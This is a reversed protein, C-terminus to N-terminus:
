KESIVIKNEDVRLEFNVIEGITELTQVATQNFELRGSFTENALTKSEIEININHFRSLKNVINLLPEEDLIFVGNRWSTYKNVDDETTSISEQEKNFVAVTGPEIQVTENQFFSKKYNIEVAGSVLAASTYTDSPYASVNFVTGLVKVEVDNTVVIFPKETNKAVEFVAEGELFVERKKDSFKAPYIFKSGSNLWITSNDSLVVKSKKGYPVYITNYIVQNIKLEQEVKNDTDIRIESSNKLHTIETEKTNIAIEEDLGLYLHTNGDAPMTEFNKAYETIGTSSINQILLFSSVVLVAIAAAAGWIFTFRRSKQSHISNEIRQKLFDKEETSLQSKVNQSIKQLEDLSEVDDIKGLGEIDSKTLDDVFEKTIISKLYNKHTDRKM